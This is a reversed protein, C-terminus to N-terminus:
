DLEFEKKWDLDAELPAQMSKALIFNELILFDMQTRMFCTYAESPTNVIPEGRVNFSTNILVPCQTLNEFAALLRFFSPNTEPHVTQVRASYDVHTIAPLNSRSINLKDIGFLIEQEPTMPIRLNEKVPAVILMYPSNSELDFYESVKDHLVAPAFPRFSERFKIKLNMIEQMKPNRADGLISRAGLARPGFEMAGSFWGIVNQEALLRAVETELNEKSVEQYPINHTDLFTRIESSSFSPGLYSGQQFDLGKLPLKPHDLYMHWTYLAAGLAGGADGAAPQIWINKFPGERLLRGNAVCNLAVGGAMVLNELKTEKYVHRGISLVVEETVEQISRAIDMHFPTLKGEPTRPNQGFLKHFHHNTMKLGTCYDFYQMNLAFSGDPKVDILHDYILQKYKPEGYPALGMLKYEGSNVKFGTYYTFASYLLGLSHPFNIESLIQLQANNGIGFSTTAWEGVGDLTLFAANNFPSPYYASAAHSEHHEPFIVEGTFGDLEKLLLDKMWLKEKLWLPIAKIFSSFGLPAFSMYTELIREFKLWPKDYFALFEVDKVEINAKQLCYQVALKPFAPDHKKRSFREEQAAAIVKGNCLLTAASDHYYASIGLIYVPKVM